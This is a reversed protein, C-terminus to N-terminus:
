TSPDHATNDFSTDKANDDTTQPQLKLRSRPFLPPKVVALEIDFM